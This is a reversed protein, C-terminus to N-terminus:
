PRSPEYAPLYKIVKFLIPPEDTCFFQAQLGLEIAAQTFLDAYPKQMERCIQFFDMIEPVQKFEPFNTCMFEHFHKSYYFSIQSRGIKKSEDYFGFFDTSYYNREKTRIFREKASYLKQAWGPNTQLFEILADFHAYLSDYAGANHNKDCIELYGTSKFQEALPAANLTQFAMLFFFRQFFSSKIIM